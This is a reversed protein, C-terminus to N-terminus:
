RHPSGHQRCSVYRRWLNIRYFGTFEFVINCSAATVCGVIPLLYFLEPPAPPALWKLAAFGLLGGVVGSIGMVLTRILMSRRSSEVGSNALRVAALISSVRTM